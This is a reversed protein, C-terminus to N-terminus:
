HKINYIMKGKLLRKLHISNEKPNMLLMGYSLIIAPEKMKLVDRLQNSDIGEISDFEALEGKEFWNRLMESAKGELKLLHNITQELGNDEKYGDLILREKLQDKNITNM